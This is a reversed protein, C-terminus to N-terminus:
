SEEMAKALKSIEDDKITEPKENYNICTNYGGVTLVIFLLEIM